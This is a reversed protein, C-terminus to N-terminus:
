VVTSYLACNIVNGHIPKLAASHTDVLPQQYFQTGLMRVHMVSLWKASSSAWCLTETFSQHRNFSSRNEWWRPRWYLNVSCLLYTNCILMHFYTSKDWVFESTKNTQMLKVGMPVYPQISSTQWPPGPHQIVFESQMHSSTQNHSFVQKNCNVSDSM